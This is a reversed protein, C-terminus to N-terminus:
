SLNCIHLDVYRCVKETRMAELEKQLSRERESLHKYEESKQQIQHNIDQLTIWCSYKLM